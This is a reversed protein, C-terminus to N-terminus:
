PVSPPTATALFIARAVLLYTNETWGRYTPHFGTFVVRDNAETDYSLMAASGVSGTMDAPSRWFGQQYAGAGARGDGYTADVRVAPDSVTYWAPPYAFAYDRAPYGATMVSTQSYDVAVIGNDGGAADPGGTTVCTPILAELDSAGYGTGSPGIGIYTHRAPGKPNAMWARVTAVSNRPGFGSNIYVDDTSTGGVVSSRVSGQGLAFGLQRLVWVTGAGVNVAVSPRGSLKALQSTQRMALGDAETLDIGWHRALWRVYRRAAGRGAAGGRRTDVVFAGLPIGDFPAAIRRGVMGIAFGRASMTNAARVAWNNDGAFWYVPGDGSVTGRHAQARSVTSVAAALPSEAKVRDFGWLYPLSWASVDFM